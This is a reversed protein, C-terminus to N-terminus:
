STIDFSEVALMHHEMATAATAPDGALIADIIRLHDTHESGVMDHLDRAARVDQMAHFLPISVAELLGQLARNGSLLAIEQHLRLDLRPYLESDTLAADLEERLALLRERGAPVEGGDAFRDAARLAARVELPGRLDMLTTFSDDRSERIARALYFRVLQPDPARVTASRGNSVEIIGLAALASLAERIVTRSVGFRAALAGTSPLPDGDALDEEDIMGLVADRVRDALSDRELREGDATPAPAALHKWATSALDEM